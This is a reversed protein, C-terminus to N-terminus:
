TISSWIRGRNRRYTPKCKRRLLRMCVRTFQIRGVRWLMILRHFWWLLSMAGPLRPSSYFLSPPYRCFQSHRTLSSCFVILISLFSVVPIIVSSISIFSELIPYYNRLLTVTLLAILPSHPSFPAVPPLFLGRRSLNIHCLPFSFCLPDVPCHSLSHVSSSLM